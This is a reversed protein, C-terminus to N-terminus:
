AIMTRSGRGFQVVWRCGSLLYSKFIVFLTLMPMVVNLIWLVADVHVPSFEPMLTIFRILVINIISEPQIMWRMLFVTCITILWMDLGQTISRVRVSGQRNLVRETLKKSFIVSFDDVSRVVEM